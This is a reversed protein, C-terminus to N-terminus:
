PLLHYPGSRLREYADRMMFQLTSWSVYQVISTITSEVECNTFAQLEPVEQCALIQITVLFYDEPGNPGVRCHYYQCKERPIGLEKLVEHLVQAYGDHLKDDIPLWEFTTMKM